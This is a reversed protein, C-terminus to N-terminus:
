SGNNLSSGRFYLAPLPGVISVPLALRPIITPSARRVFLFIVLIVLFVTLGLTYQVDHVAAKIPAARDNLVNIDVAGPLEARFVPILAKIQDVVQVTNADPQRSVAVTIARKGNYWTGNKNLQVGDIVRAVDRLRVPAGNRYAIILPEYSAAKTPQTNAQLTAAKQPGSFAGVPTTSSTAQLAKQVEDLGIGRAALLEPDVQVRVAFKQPGFITVQAVGDLTSLRQGIHVEAFENLTSM